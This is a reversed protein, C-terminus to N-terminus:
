EESPPPETVEIDFLLQLPVGFVHCARLVMGISPRVEGRVFRSITYHRVGLAQAQATYTTLGESACLADWADRKLVARIESDPSLQRSM